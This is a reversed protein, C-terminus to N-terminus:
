HSVTPAPATPLSQPAAAPAGTTHPNSAAGNASSSSVVEWRAGAQHLTYRVSVALDPNDKSRFKADAQASDDGFKVSEIELTMKSMALDSRSKLHAEIAERVAKESRLGRGCGALATVLALLCTCTLKM